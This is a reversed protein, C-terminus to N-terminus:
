ASTREEGEGEGENHHERTLVKKTQPRVWGEHRVYKIKIM